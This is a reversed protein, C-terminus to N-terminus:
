CRRITETVGLSLWAVVREGSESLEACWAAVLTTKGYGTPAEILMVRAARGVTLADMLRQRAIHGTRMPPRAPKTSVLEHM